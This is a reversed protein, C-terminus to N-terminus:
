RGSLAAQLQALVEPYPGSPGPTYVPKGQADRSLACAAVQGTPLIELLGDASDSPDSVLVACAFRQALAYGIEVEFTTAVELPRNFNLSLFLPYVPEDNVVYSVNTHVYDPAEAIWSWNWMAARDVQLLCSLEELLAPEPVARGLNIELFDLEKLM